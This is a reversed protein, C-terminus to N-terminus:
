FPWSLTALGPGLELRAREKRSEGAEASPLTFALVITAVTGCAAAVLFVDAAIALRHAEDARAELEDISVDPGTAAEDGPNVDAARGALALGVILTGAAAAATGYFWPNPGAHRPEDPEQAPAGAPASTGPPRPHPKVEHRAGELRLIIAALAAQEEENKELELARRYSAIAADLDGLREQILGLNYFLVKADPDLKVALELKTAAERYRGHAYLSRAEDHLELAREPASVGPTDDARLDPAGLLLAPALLVAL